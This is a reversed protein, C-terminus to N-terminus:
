FREIRVRPGWPSWTAPDTPGFFVTTDVGLLAALHALGSDNAWVAAAGALLHAVEHLRPEQRCRHERPLQGELGRELEAPGILWIPERGLLAQQRAIEVFREVPPCKAPSGAGPALVVYPDPRVSAPRDRLEFAARSLPTHHPLLERLCADLYPVVHGQGPPPRSSRWLACLAGRARLPDPQGPPPARSVLALAVAGELLTSGRGTPRYLDFRELSAIAEAVGLLALLELYPPTGIVTVMMGPYARRLARLAPALLLTDGLAGPKIVVLHRHTM